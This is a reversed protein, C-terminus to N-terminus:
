NNYSILYHPQVIFTHLKECIEMVFLQSLLWKTQFNTVTKVTQASKESSIVLPGKGAHINTAFEAKSTCSGMSQFDPGYVWM